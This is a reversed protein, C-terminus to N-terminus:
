YFYPVPVSCTGTYTAYHEDDLWLDVTTTADCSAGVHTDWVHSGRYYTIAMTISNPTMSILQATVGPIEGNNGFVPLGDYWYAHYHNGWYRSMVTLGFDHPESVSVRFTLTIWGQGAQTVTPREVLGIVADPENGLTGTIAVRQTFNAFNESPDLGPITVHAFTFSGGPALPPVASDLIRVLDQGAPAGHTGAPVMYSAVIHADSLAEGSTNTLKADFTGDTNKKWTLTVTGRFFRAVIGASYGVARPGLLAAQSALASEPLSWIRRPAVRQLEYDFYSQFSHNPNNTTVGRYADFTPYTLVVDQYATVNLFASGNPSFTTTTVTHIENRAAADDINPSEFYFPPCWPDSYNTHETVFNLNSYNAMGRQGSESFYDAYSPLTVVPYGTLPVPNDRCWREYRSWLNLVDLACSEPHELCSGESTPHADNRTHQPQAMDQVMHMLHGLTFFLGAARQERLFSTPETLMLRYHEKAAALGYTNEATHLAWQRASYEGNAGPIHACGDYANRFVLASEHIPDYFHNVPRPFPDISDEHRAGEAAIHAPTANNIRSFPSLGIRGLFNTQANARLIAERTMARHTTNQDYALASPVATAALLLILAIRKM